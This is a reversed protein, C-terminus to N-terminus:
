IGSDPFEPIAQSRARLRRGFSALMLVVLGLLVPPYVVM